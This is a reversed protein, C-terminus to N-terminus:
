HMDVGQMAEVLHRYNTQNILSHEWSNVAVNHVLMEDKAYLGSIERIYYIHLQIHIQSGDPYVSQTAM